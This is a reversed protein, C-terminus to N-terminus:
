REGGIAPRGWNCGKDLCWRMGSHVRGLRHGNEQGPTYQVIHYGDRNLATIMEETTMADGYRELVETQQDMTLTKNM